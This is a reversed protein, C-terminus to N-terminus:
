ANHNHNNSEKWFFESSDDVSHPMCGDIKADALVPLRFPGLMAARKPWCKEVWGTVHTLLQTVEPPSVINAKAEGVPEICRM